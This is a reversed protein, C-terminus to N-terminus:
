LFKKTYCYRKQWKYLSKIKNIDVIIKAQQMEVYDKLASEISIEVIQSTSQIYLKSNQHYAMLGMKVFHYYCKKEEPVMLIFIQCM